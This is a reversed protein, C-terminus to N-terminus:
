CIFLRLITGIFIGLVICIIYEFTSFGDAQKKLEKFEEKDIMKLDPRIEICPYLEGNSNKNLELEFPIGNRFYHNARKLNNFNEKKKILNM